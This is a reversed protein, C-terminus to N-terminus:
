KVINDGFWKESIKKAEGNAKMEDLAKNLNNLLEKDSKRVGIGYSESGFNESLISYKEVGRQKIYYKALIEDAVVADIRGAELDMLAENNTDFLVPKRDKLNKIIDEQKNLAELSSSSNQVGVKANSLDKKTKIKSNKLTIIIQKNDLYPNTFTVKEKREDTISYGNWILDINKNNLETEKMNWDIPQFKVKKDIKNLAEKALDVDFGVIEGKDDKYGMPVFTDDLGIVITDKEENLSKKNEKCGLIGFVLGSVLVGICLTKLINNKM